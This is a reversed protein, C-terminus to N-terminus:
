VLTEPQRAGEYQQLRAKYTGIRQQEGLASNKMQTLNLLQWSTLNYPSRHEKKHLDLDQPAPKRDQQVHGVAATLRTPVVALKPWLSHLM